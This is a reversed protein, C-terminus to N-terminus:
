LPPVVCLSVAVIKSDQREIGCKSENLWGAGVPLKEREPNPMAHRLGGGAPVVPPGSNHTPPVSPAMGTVNATYNPFAYQSQFNMMMASSNAAM